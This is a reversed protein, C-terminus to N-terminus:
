GRPETLVRTFLRDNERRVLRYCECARQELQARDIISIKGRQRRILGDAELQASAESVGQRRVGLLTAILEQTCDVQGSPLVPATKQLNVQQRSQM